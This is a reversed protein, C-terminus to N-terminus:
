FKCWRKRCDDCFFAHESPEAKQNDIFVWRGMSKGQEEHYECQCYCAQRALKEAVSEINVTEIHRPHWGVEQSTMVIPRVGHNVALELAPGFDRDGSVLIAVDIKGECAAEVIRTGVAMDVEKEIEKGKVNLLEFLDVEWGYSKLRDAFKQKKSLSERDGKRYSCAYYVQALEAGTLGVERLIHETFSQWAVAYRPEKRNRRKGVTHQFLWSGDIYIGVRM